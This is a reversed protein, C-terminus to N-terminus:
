FTRGTCRRVCSWVPLPDCAVSRETQVLSPFEQMLLLGAGSCVKLVQLEDTSSARFATSDDENPGHLWSWPNWSALARPHMSWTDMRVSLYISLYNIKWSDYLIMVGFLVLIYVNMFIISVCWMYLIFIFTDFIRKSYHCQIFFPPGTYSSSDEWQGRSTQLDIAPSTPRLHCAGTIHLRRRSAPPRVM